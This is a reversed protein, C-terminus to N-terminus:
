RLDTGSRAAALLGDLDQRCPHCDRLHATVGPLREEPDVGSLLLDVYVDLLELTEGCGVDALDPSLFRDLKGAKTM